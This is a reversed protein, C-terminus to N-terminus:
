KPGPTKPLAFAVVYDGSQTRLTGHGGAAIVVFQRGSKASVYSIPNAQGGAPLRGAWLERGTETDFARLYNDITAGVFAVGGRTTVTGGLNFVGTPLAIGFPAADRTTGLPRDWIVRRTNLDVAAIRGWPPQNCPYGAPSLFAWSDIAYPTGQQAFYTFTSKDPPPDGPSRRGYAKVGMRIADARPILKQYYPLQSTNVIMLQREPDVSVSGWDIIGFSGAYVVTGQTSQPTFQGQYRSKKFRVRCWLQDLPTAGWMDAETLDLPAFSPFGTSFPQTPSTWDGAVAGQPVKKEVVETLPSGTRQDLVFIEGRKTPAILAPVTGQPTKFDVLVPQSGIDFDWIDHHVTQFNWRVDGSEVDLAVISSPYREVDPTRQGAFFDPPVNGTPIFLLGLAANATGVTWYNATSRRYKTDPAPNKISTPSVVDWAWLLKGSQVDYGRVVGPPMDTSQNDLIFAGIVAVHGVILPPSTPYYYGTPYDELGLGLKLDVSGGAGFDECLKGTKADLALLRNDLTGMLLREACVGQAASAHYGLGRCVMHPVGTTDVQPDFRWKEGGTDADLSVVINHPTCLYLADGVKLPTAEFPTNAFSPDTPRRADKTRYTWAVQLSHVNSRDIQDAGVFRTAEATGGFAAWDTAVPTGHGAPRAASAIPKFEQAFHAGAVLGVAALLLLPGAASAARRLGLGRRVWPMAFWLGLAAPAIVRPMMAWPYWGTEWVAWLLTGATFAAYLWAARADRRWALWGTGLLALGSVVYYLSGGLRALEAVGLLLALGLIVLTLILGYARPGHKLDPV